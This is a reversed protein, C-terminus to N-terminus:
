ILGAKKIEAWIREVAGATSIAGYNDITIDPSRPEEFDEVLGVMTGGREIETKKYLGKPDREVREQAPVRLYVEFYKDNQSRNWDRVEHFMSITACIAVFGQDAIHKALRAYTLALARRDDDNYSQTRGLIARLEDGDLLCPHIGEVRMREVSCPGRDDERRRVLWHDVRCLIEHTLAM